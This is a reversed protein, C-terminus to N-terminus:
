FMCNVMQKLTDTNTEPYRYKHFQLGLMIMYIYIYITYVCQGSVRSNMLSNFQSIPPNSQLTIVATFLVHGNYVCTVGTKYHMPGHLTNRAYRTLTRMCYKYCLKSAVVVDVVSVVVGDVVTTTTTSNANAATAVVAVVYAHM